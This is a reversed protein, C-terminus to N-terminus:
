VLPTANDLEEALRVRNLVPDYCCVLNKGLRKAEYLASDARAFLRAPTMDFGLPLTAAGVAATVTKNTGAVAIPAAGIANRVRQGVRVAHDLDTEPLVIGFEDGGIRGLLDPDRLRSAIRNVIEKLVEDGAAHGLTDNVQKFGDLDLMLVSLPRGYRLTRNMELELAHQLARRNMVGTLDDHTAIKQLLRKQDELQNMLSRVRLHTKLRAFLVPYNFPKTVYDDAGFELGTVQTSSEHRASILLVPISHTRADKRLEQLYTLGDIGPMSLDLLIADPTRKELIMRAAHASSASIPEYGRAGLRRTLLERCDPDDDIVLVVFHQQTEPRTSEAQLQQVAENLAIDVAAKDDEV